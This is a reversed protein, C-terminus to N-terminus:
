NVKNTPNPQIQDSTSPDAEIQRRAVGEFMKRGFLSCLRVYAFMLSYKGMRSGPFRVSVEGLRGYRGCDAIQLKRDSIPRNQVAGTTPGLAWM